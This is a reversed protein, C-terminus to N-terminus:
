SPLQKKIILGIHYLAIGLFSALTIYIIHFGDAGYLGLFGLVTLVAHIQGAQVQRPLLKKDGTDCLTTLNTTTLIVAVMLLISIGSFVMQDISLIIHNSLEGYGFLASFLFVIIFIFSFLLNFKKQEAYRFDFLFVLAALIAIIPYFLISFLSTIILYMVLDMKGAPKGTTRNIMRLSFLLWLIIFLHVGDVTFFPLFLFVIGIFAAYDHEPDLERGLAWCFFVSLSFIVAFFLSEIFLHTRGYEIFFTSILV